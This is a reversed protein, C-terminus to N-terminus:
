TSDREGCPSIHDFIHDCIDDRLSPGHVKEAPGRRIEARHMEVVTPCVRIFCNENPSIVKFVCGCSLEKIGPLRMNELRRETDEPFSYPDDM